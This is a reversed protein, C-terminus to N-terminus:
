TRVRGLAKRTRYQKARAKRGRSKEGATSRDRKPPSGGMLDQWQRLNMRYSIM